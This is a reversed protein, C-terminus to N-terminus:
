GAAACDGNLADGMGELAWDLHGKAGFDGGQDEIKGAKLATRANEMRQTVASLTGHCGNLDVVANSRADSVESSLQQVQGALRDREAKVEALEGALQETGAEREGGCGALVVLLVLVMTATPPRASWRRVFLGGAIAFGAGVFLTYIGMGVSATVLDSEATVSHIRGQVDNYAYAAILGTLVGIMIPLLRWRAPLNGTVQAVGLLVAIMGLVLTIVGDGIGEGQMGNVTITGALPITATLWPLFSGLMILVGGLGTIIGGIMEPNQIGGASGNGSLEEPQNV